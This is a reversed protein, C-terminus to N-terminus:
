SRNSCYYYHSHTSAKPEMWLCGDDSKVNGHLAFYYLKYQMNNRNHFTGQSISRQEYHIWPM